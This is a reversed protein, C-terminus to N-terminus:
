KLYSRCAIQLWAKAAMCRAGPVPTQPLIHQCVGRQQGLACGLVCPANGQREKCAKDGVHVPHWRGFLEHALFVVDAISPNTPAQVYGSSRKRINWKCLKPTEQCTARQRSKRKPLNTSIRYCTAATMIGSDTLDMVCWDDEAMSGDWAGACRTDACNTERWLMPRPSYNCPLNQLERSTCESRDWQKCIPHSCHRWGPSSSLVWCVSLLKKVPKCCLERLRHRLPNQPRILGAPM